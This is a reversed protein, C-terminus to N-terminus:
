SIIPIVGYQQWPSKKDLWQTTLTNYVTRFDTTFQMDNNVLKSLSPRKGYIGKNVRGGLMM